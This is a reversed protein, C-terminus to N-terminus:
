HNSLLITCASDIINDRYLTYAAQRDFKLLIDPPVGNEYNKGDLAITRTVSFRYVWGNPLVGSAPLGLGGGTTDGMLRINDYAQTSIAFASAASFCGRDTLVLVPKTYVNTGSEPAYTPQLPTFDNHGTGSKIQSYYLVQGHSPMVSLLRHVNLLAGGGNGRIDFIMGVADPYCTIVYRFDNPDVSNSFSSYRVYIVKGDCLSTHVIGGSTRFSTGLYTTVLLNIDIGSESFFRYYVTDDHSVDHPGYLNVHGDSLTGLMAACLTFLSDSSMGDRVQPRLTDYVTNWDVNKVDFMSYQQDVIHWLYDFTRTATPETQHMFAKECGSFLLAASLSLFLLLSQKM